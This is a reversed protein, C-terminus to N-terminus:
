ASRGLVAMVLAVTLGGLGLVPHHAFFTGTLTAVLIAGCTLCIALPSPRDM